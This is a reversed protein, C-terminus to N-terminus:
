NGLCIGRVKIIRLISLKSIYNKFTENQIYTVISMENERLKSLHYNSCMGYLDSSFKNLFEKDSKSLRFLCFVQGKIFFIIRKNIYKNEKNTNEMLFSVMFGRRQLKDSLKLQPTGYSGEEATIAIWVLNLVIRNNLM